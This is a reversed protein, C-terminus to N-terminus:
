RSGALLHRIRAALYKRAQHTIDLGGFSLFAHIAGDFCRFCTPVGAAVLQRAYARAEDVLPDHGAALIVTPPLMGPNGALLPSVEPDDPRSDGDLYWEVSADINERSLLYEGNGFAMRSPYATHPRSVDLVPYLLFQAALRIEKGSHLRLAIVTALNGGASDGMIALRSPDGGLGACHNNVWRVAALGDELGAPFKHEPALRYGVSVIVTRSLDCLDRLLGDYSDLDGLSWGGGHMFVIVPSPERGHDPRRYSRVPIKGAPGDIEFSDVRCATRKDGALARFLALSGKRATEIDSAHVDPLTEGAGLDLRRLLDATQPDLTM